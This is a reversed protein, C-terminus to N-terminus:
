KMDFLVDLIFLFLYNYFFKLSIFILVIENDIENLFIIKILMDINKNILM